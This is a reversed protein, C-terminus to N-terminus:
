NSLVLGLWNMMPQTLESSNEEDDGLYEAVNEKAQAEYTALIGPAIGFERGVNLAFRAAIYVQEAATCEGELDLAFEFAEGEPLNGQWRQYNLAHGVETLAVLFQEESDIDHTRVECWDANRTHHTTAEDLEDLWVLNLFNNECEQKIFKTVKKESFVRTKPKTETTLLSELEAEVEQIQSRLMKLKALAEVIKQNNNNM